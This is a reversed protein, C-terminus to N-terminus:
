SCIIQLDISYTDMLYSATGSLIRLMDDTLAKANIGPQVIFIEIKAPFVRMKNKIERLKRVNGIEFRTGGSQARSSERKMLRDIITPPEQCWKISKEAQGCVEYLDAVRAGANDGHAYKCHYFQITIRDTTDMISVIDAIEGAGDDDFIMCYKDSAKLKQIVHYQISQKDHQIGQSERRIDVTSWDWTSIRNLNFTPPTSTMRVLLNGELMSQDVFKIRPPFEDFFETLKYEHKRRKLVLGNAKITKFNYRGNSIHLEYEESVINNGVSFRIPGNESYTTLKIDLEYISYDDFGRSILISSDNILDLDIPWEIGYPVSLPRENIIEPVLAGEFIKSTNIEENQLRSAIEDCWNMWYDISEVWKSWIRGKYSCGISVKGEGSYGAGFLNSKFSTEKQSEAIGNGIDIGAFMRFRIPGDIASKLGITGLMLRKIGYLCRFTNEGSIKTSQAFLANAFTDSISKNTSNIFFMKSQPNWYILHLHWNTDNIGKFSTWDINSDLKEVIVIIGSDNNITIFCSDPDFLNYIADTNWRKENTSYAIMSIKPRLQQITMGHLSASDFGQALEQLSLEKSIERNALVHLLVNWDSDQAYLEQLSENLEDNAINTIVTAAGLGKSSRAFRGIFQLTIPLSKYKDHVAAIKLSPIDIGEGFMDVCVVIRSTGDKLAKIAATRETASIDSHVLVPNYKPFHSHYITNYLRDASFKDKARVLILHNYGASLDRELQEIAATAISIDGKEEDFELIPLFNIEQFYGQSQALSLPFNYIIKGDVKKGDNRFPTATFQLCRLNKLKYKVTSWTNAAIHHAEDVILTSCYESIAKLYDDSFRQLLSMTTVVVNSKELIERLEFLEKPTKLLTTVAPKLADHNIVGIDQLIGFTLFKDATQKRLLNSPVVILTHNISESVITAIMTETKGTGTPMVITAPESSVIWHSKISFLAGLQAPRLGPCSETQPVFSLVNHWSDIVYEVPLIDTAPETQIQIIKNNGVALKVENM